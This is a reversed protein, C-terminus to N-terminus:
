NESPREARDVILFESPGKTPELKLGLQEQFATFISAGGTPDDPLTPAFRPITGDPAFDVHLHFLGTIGTKNIVPRDLVQILNASIQDLSMGHYEVFAPKGGQARGYRTLGCHVAPNTTTSDVRKLPDVPTCMGETLPQLKLGSKAVVLEYVAIEKTQLRVKLKFRDELLSQLMPGEMMPASPDGEAKAEIEFRDTKLWNPGGSIPVSEAPRLVNNAYTVYADGILLTIPVCVASFRGPSVHIGGSVRGGRGGADSPCPKISVVEWKPTPSPTVVQAFAPSVAIAILVNARGLLKM